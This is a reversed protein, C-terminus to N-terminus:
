RYDFIENELLNVERLEINRCGVSGASQHWTAHDISM